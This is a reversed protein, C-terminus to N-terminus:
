YRDLKHAYPLPLAATGGGPFWAACVPRFEVPVETGLALASDLSWYGLLLRLLAQNDPILASQFLADFATEHLANPEACPLRRRLEPELLKLLGQRDLIAGMMGGSPPVSQHFECGVASAARGVSSDFPEYVLFEGQRMQWCRSALEVLMTQAAQVDRAILEDVVFPRTLRGFQREQTIAYGAMGDDGDLIVVESGPRWTQTELLRNWDAHRQHTWPRAAHEGNYLDIMAPLDDTSFERINDNLAPLRGAAREVNRVQVSLHAEVLCNVFGFKEYAQEIADSVLVAKVRGGIGALAKSLLKGMLGQRRQAPMTEVGGIGECPISVVGFRQQFSFLNLGSVPEDLGDKWLFCDRVPLSRSVRGTEETYRLGPEIYEEEISM